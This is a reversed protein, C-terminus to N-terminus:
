EDGESEEARRRERGRRRDHIRRQDQNSWIPIAITFVASWDGESRVAIEGGHEKVIQYAVALGLGTGSPRSTAFPVFLEELIEGPLREGTNAIELLVRERQRFTEIRITDGDGVTELANRLINIVVQKIRDADLLLEPIQESYTEELLVGQSLVDDRLLGVCEQVIDNLQGMALRPAAERALELQQDLIEELRQAESAIIRANERNPDGQALGREIRRAFGGLAVLPNRIEHAVRASIEGLAALRESQLLLAQTERLRREAQRMREFLRASQIAVAAHGGLLTLLDEVEPGFCRDECPEDALRQVVVLVGLLEGFAALPVVVAPVARAAEALDLAEERRIDEYLLASRREICLGALREMQPVVEEPLDDGRIAVQAALHLERSAEDYTWVIGQGGLSAQAGARAVLTLVDALSSASLMGRVAAQVIHLASIKRQALSEAHLRDLALGLHHALGAAVGKRESDWTGVEGSDVLVLLGVPGGTGVVPTLLFEGNGNCSDLAAAVSRAEPGAVVIGPPDASVARVLPNGTELDMPIRIRRVFAALADSSPSAGRPLETTSRRGRAKRVVARGGDPNKPTGADADPRSGTAETVAEGQLIAGEKALLFLLAKRYGLGQSDTLSALAIREAESPDAAAHIQLIARSLGSLERDGDAAGISNKKATDLAPHATDNALRDRDKPRM